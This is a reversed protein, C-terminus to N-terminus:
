ADGANQRPTDRAEIPLGERNGWEGWSGLYNRVNPYGLMKLVLYTHASRYGGGCFAVIEKDPTVGHQAFFDRLEDAARLAGAGDIGNSWQLHVAGPITGGRATHFETGLHETIRRTDIILVEDRDLRELIDRYTALREPHLRPEMTGPAVRTPETTVEGGAGVWAQLGGDLMRVDDHGYYDLVWVGRAANTGSFGEYTVVISDDNVGAARLAAIQRANFDEVGAPGTDQTGLVGFHLNTAGPIHGAAYEAPTRGDILRLRPDDLHARLWAVDVLFREDQYGKHGVDV